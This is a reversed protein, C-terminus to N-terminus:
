LRMSGAQGWGSGLCLWTVGPGRMASTQPLAAPTAFYGCELFCLGAPTRPQSM